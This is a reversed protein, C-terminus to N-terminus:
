EVCLNQIGLYTTTLEYNMFMTIMMVRRKQKILIYIKLYRFPLLEDPHILENCALLILLIM